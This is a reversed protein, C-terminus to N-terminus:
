DDQLIVEIKLRIRIMESVIKKITKIKNINRMDNKIFEMTKMLNYQWDRNNAMM